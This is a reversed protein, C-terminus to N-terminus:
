NLIELIRDFGRMTGSRHPKGCSWNEVRYNSQIYDAIRRDNEPTRPANALDPPLSVDTRVTETCGCLYKVRLDIRM